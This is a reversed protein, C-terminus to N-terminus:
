KGQLTQGSGTYEFLGFGELYYYGNPMEPITVIFYTSSMESYSASSYMSEANLLLSDAKITLEGYFTGQYYNFKYMADKTLGKIFGSDTLMNTKIDNGNIETIKVNEGSSTVMSDIYASVPSFPNRTPGFSIIIPSKIDTTNTYTAFSTGVTYGMEEMKIFNFASPRETSSTYVLQDGEGLKTISDMQADTLWWNSYNATAGSSITNYALGDTSSLIYYGPPATGIAQGYTGLVESSGCGVLLMPLFAAATITAIIKRLKMNIIARIHMGKKKLKYM